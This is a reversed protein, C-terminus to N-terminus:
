ESEEFYKEEPSPMTMEIVQDVLRRTIDPRHFIALMATGESKLQEIIHIVCEATVPDLSATPEDLLLLRPKAILGRALNVRQREGGSFRAPSISWMREPVRMARLLESARQNAEDRTVGIALLPQTVVDITPQRPLCHLFQTVFGIEFRRFQLIKQEDITALDFDQGSASRYIIRGGRPLYTRYICKLVSSKGAGTPGILASLEGANVNFSIRCSSPIRKNQEHLLFSKSFNEVQLVPTNVSNTPKM